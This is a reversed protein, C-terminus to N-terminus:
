LPWIQETEHAYDLSIDYRDDGYSWGYWELMGVDDWAEESVKTFKRITKCYEKEIRNIESEPVQDRDAVNCYYSKTWYLIGSDQVVINLIIM